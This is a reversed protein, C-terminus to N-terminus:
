KRTIKSDVVGGGEKYDHITLIECVGGGGWLTIKLGDMFSTMLKLAFKSDDVRQGYRLKRTM